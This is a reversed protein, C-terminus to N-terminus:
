QKESEGENKEEESHSAPKQTVVEDDDDDDLNLSRGKARANDEVARTADAIYQPYRQELTRKIGRLRRFIEELDHKMQKDLKAYRELERSLKALEQYNNENFTQLSSTTKRMRELRNVTNLFVVVVDGDFGDYYVYLLYSLSVFLFSLRPM